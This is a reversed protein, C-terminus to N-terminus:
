LSVALTEPCLGSDSSVKSCSTTTLKSNVLASVRSFYKEEAQKRVTVADEIHEFHGLNIRKGRVTIYTLWKQHWESWSVGKVGSTNRSSTARAMASESRSVNLLNAWRNDMRDGNRWLVDGKPWEGTMYLFALRHCYHIRRGIAIIAHGDCTSGAISGAPARNSLTKLWRWEGTDPDYHLLERLREATLSAERNSVCPFAGISESAVSVATQGDLYNSKNPSALEPPGVLKQEAFYAL